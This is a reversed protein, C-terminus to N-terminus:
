FEKLQLNTFKGPQGNELRTKEGRMMKVEAGGYHIRSSTLVITVIFRLNNKVLFFTKSKGLLEQVTPKILLKFYFPQLRRNSIKQPKERESRLLHM